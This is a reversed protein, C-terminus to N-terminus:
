LHIPISQIPIPFRQLCQNYSCRKATSIICQITCPPSNWKLWWEQNPNLMHSWGQNPCWHVACRIWQSNADQSFPGPSRKPKHRVRILALCLLTLKNQFGTNIPVKTTLKMWVAAKWYITYNYSSACSKLSLWLCAVQVQVLDSSSWYSELKDM